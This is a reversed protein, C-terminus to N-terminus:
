LCVSRGCLETGSKHAAPRCTTGSPCENTSVCAECGCEEAEAPCAAVTRQVNGGDASRGDVVCLTFGCTNGRSTPAECPVGTCESADACFRPNPASCGGGVCHAGCACDANTTCALGCAADGACAPDVCDILGDGDDDIGGQCQETSAKVGLLGFALLPASVGAADRRRGPLAAWGGDLERVVKPQEFSPSAFSIVGPLLLKVSVPRVEVVREVGVPPAERMALMVTTEEALAGPPLWLAVGLDTEVAGGAPGLRKIGARGSADVLSDCGCLALVFLCGLGRWVM